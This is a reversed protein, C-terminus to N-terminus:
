PEVSPLVPALRSEVDPPLDLTSSRLHIFAGGMIMHATISLDWTNSNTELYKHVVKLAALVDPKAAKDMTQAYEQVKEIIYRVDLQAFSARALLNYRDVVFGDM